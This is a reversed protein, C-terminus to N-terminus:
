ALSLQCYPDRDSVPSSILCLDPPWGGVPMTPQQHLVRWRDESQSLYRGSISCPQKGADQGWPVPETPSCCPYWFPQQLLVPMEWLVRWSVGRLGGGWERVWRVTLLSNSDSRSEELASDSQQPFGSPVSAGGEQGTSRLTNCTHYEHSNCAIREIFKFYLAEVDPWTKNLLEKEGCLTCKPAVPSWLTAGDKRCWGEIIIGRKFTSKSLVAVILSERFTSKIVSLHPWVLHRVSNGEEVKQMNRRFSFCHQKM